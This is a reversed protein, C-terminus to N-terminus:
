PLLMAGLNILAGVGIVGMPHISPRLICVVSSMLAIALLVWSVSTLRILSALGALLLGAGIPLLARELRKVFLRDRYRKWAVAVGISFATSPLFMALTAVVAGWPGMVQWGIMTALMMSGPGPAGRAIAFLALFQAPSVWAHMDVTQNRIESIVAMGGGFATLSLPTFVAALDTLLAFRDPM